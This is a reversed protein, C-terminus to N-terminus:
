CGVLRFLTIEPRVNFRVRKLHGLGCNIYLSRGDGLDFAGSTYRRNVVPLLPPPLFPPECPGGHTRSSLTWGRYGGWM